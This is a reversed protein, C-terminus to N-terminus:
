TQSASKADFTNLKTSISNKSKFNQLNEHSNIQSKMNGVECVSVVLLDADFM